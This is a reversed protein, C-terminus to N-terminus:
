YFAYSCVILERCSNGAALPVEAQVTSASMTEVAVAVVGNVVFLLFPDVEAAHGVHHLHGPVIM